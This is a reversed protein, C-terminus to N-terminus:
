CRVCRASRIQDGFIRTASISLRMSSRGGRRRWDSRCVSRSSIPQQLRDHEERKARRRIEAPQRSRRERRAQREAELLSPSPMRGDRIMATALAVAAEASAEQGRIHSEHALCRGECDEICWCGRKESWEVSAWLVGDVKIRGIAHKASMGGPWTVQVPLTRQEELTAATFEAKGGKAM